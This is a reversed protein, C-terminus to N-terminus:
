LEVFKKVQQVLGPWGQSYGLLAEPEDRLGSHTVKVKTGKATPTLEWRVISEHAPNEHWNATWTYVLLHPPNIELIKGQHDFKKTHHEKGTRPRSLSRWEGGVQPAMKWILLEYEPSNSWLRVQQPDTLAQFIREAPASIETEVVVKDQDVLIPNAAM